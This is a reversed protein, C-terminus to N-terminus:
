ANAIMTAKIHTSRYDFAMAVKEQKEEKEPKPFAKADRFLELTKIVAPDDQNLYETWAQEDLM